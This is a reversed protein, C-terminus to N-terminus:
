VYVYDMIRNVWRIDASDLLNEVRTTGEALAALLLVRNSLSKSGPLTVEGNISTIPDVTLSEVREVAAFRTVLLSRSSKRLSTRLLANSLALLLFLLVISTQVM